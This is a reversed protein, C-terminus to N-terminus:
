PAGTNLERRLILADVPGSARAYYGPRRGGSQFGLAAYLARAAANDEAVELWMVEAGGAAALAAASEVLAAGLGRRRALPDVALTLIEAEGAVSRALIFGAPPSGAQLAFVFPSGLLDAIARADWPAEFACAHIAALAACADAGVAQIAADM